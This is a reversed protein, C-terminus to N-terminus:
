EITVSVETRKVPRIIFEMKTRGRLVNITFTNAEASHVYPAFYFLYSYPALGATKKIESAVKSYNSTDWYMCRTFGNIDTFRTKPNRLNMTRTIFTKYATSVEETNANLKEGAIKEIIDNAQIGAAAAPSNPDVAAVLNLRSIDYNIGTYNYTNNSVRYQVNRSYKVYPYQMFMLPVHIQAYNSLSYSDELLENAECEWLVRGQRYVNDTIKIGFQLLFQASSEPASHELFPVQVMEKKATNYRYVYDKEVVIKSSGRFNPNRDFFYFTSILLEPAKPDYTLGKETLAEKIYANIDSDLSTSENSEAFGFTSFQGFNINDTTSSTKFPCIFARETTTELSLMSFAQALVDESLAKKSKCEKKVIVSREPNSINSVTLVVSNKDNPNLLQEVEERSLGLLNVGDIENIIDDRKLGALEANSYSTVSTIVPLGTGWNVSNSVDFTIGLRCITNQSFVVVSIFSLFIILLNKKM